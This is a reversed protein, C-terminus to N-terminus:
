KSEELTYIIHGDPTNIRVARTKQLDYLAQGSLGPLRAANRKFANMTSKMDQSGLEKNKASFIKMNLVVRM